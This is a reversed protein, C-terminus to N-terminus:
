HGREARGLNLTLTAATAQVTESNGVFVLLSVGPLIECVAVEGCQQRLARAVSEVVMDMPTGIREDQSWAELHPSKRKSM